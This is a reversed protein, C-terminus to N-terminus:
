RPMVLGPSPILAAMEGMMVMRTKWGSPVSGRLLQGPGKESLRTSAEAAQRTPSMLAEAHSPPAPHPLCIPLRHPASNLSQSSLCGPTATHAKTLAERKIFLVGGGNGAGGAATRELVARLCCCSHRHAAEATGGVMSCPLTEPAM